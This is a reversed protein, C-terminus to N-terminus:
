ESQNVNIVTVSVTCATIVVTMNRSYYLWTVNAQQLM